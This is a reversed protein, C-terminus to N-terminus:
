QQQQQPNARQVRQNAQLAPGHSFHLYRAKIKKWNFWFGFESRRAHPSDYGTTIFVARIKNKDYWLLSQLSYSVFHFNLFVCWTLSFFPFFFLAQSSQVTWSDSKFKGESQRTMEKGNAHPTPQPPQPVLQEAEWVAQLSSNSEPHWYTVMTSWLWWPFKAFVANKLVIVYQLKGQELAGCPTKKTLLTMCSVATSPCGKEFSEWFAHSSNVEGNTIQSTKAKQQM